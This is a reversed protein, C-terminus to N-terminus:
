PLGPPCARRTGGRWARGPPPGRPETPHPVPELTPQGAHAGAPVSVPGAHPAFRLYGLGAVVLAIASAAM